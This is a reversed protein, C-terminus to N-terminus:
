KGLWYMKKTPIKLYINFKYGMKNKSQLEKQKIFMQVLVLLIHGSDVRICNKRVPM